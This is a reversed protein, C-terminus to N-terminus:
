LIPIKHLLIDNKVRRNISKESILDVKKKFLKELYEILRMLEFLWFCVNEKKSFLFDIDSDKTVKWTAYSGFLSLQAIGNKQLYKRVEKKQITKIIQEKKM